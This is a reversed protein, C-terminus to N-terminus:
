RHIEWKILKGSLFYAGGFLATMGFALGIAPVVGIGTRYVFQYIPYVAGAAIGSALAAKLFGIGIGQLATKSRLVPWLRWTYFMATIWSAAIDAIAIGSVGVSPIWSLFYLGTGTVLLVINTILPTKADSMSYSIKAFIVNLSMPLLGAAYWATTLSTLGLLEPTYKGTNGTFLLSPDRFALNVMIDPFIIFFFSLPVILYLLMRFGENIARDFKEHDIKRDIGSLLPLLVTALAIGIVGIPAQNIMFSNNIVVFSGDPLFSLFVTSTYTAIMLVVMNVSTPLFLRFFKRVAPDKLDIHLRYKFGMRVLEVVEMLFMLISGILVSAGLAYTGWQRLFIVPIVMSAINFLIPSFAPTFFRKNSNLVGMAMSFLSIFIVFPMMIVTMNITETLKPNGERYGPVLLPVFLPALLIGLVTISVTAILFINIINSAFLFSKERDEHNVAQYSPIFANNLAGEGIIKRLNNIMKFSAQFPDAKAGFLHNIVTFKLVGTIRSFLTGLSNIFTHKFSVMRSAM